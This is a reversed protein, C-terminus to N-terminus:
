VMLLKKLLWLKGEVGAEPPPRVSIKRKLDEGQLYASKIDGSKVEFGENAAIILALKLTEKGATPSDARVLDTGDEFDGRICLRAKIPQNKGDQGQKTVVWRIPVSDQGEDDIQEFAEFTKYKEIENQM